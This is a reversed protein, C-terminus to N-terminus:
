LGGVSPRLQALSCCFRVLHSTDYVKIKATVAHNVSFDHIFHPVKVPSTYIGVQPIFWILASSLSLFAYFDLKFRRNEMSVLGIHLRMM